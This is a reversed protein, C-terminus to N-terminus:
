RKILLRDAGAFPTGLVKLYGFVTTQSQGSPIDSCSFGTDKATFHFIRDLLGDGNLDAAAHSVAQGDKRHLEAAETGLKGFRVDNVNVRTADFTASSLLGVPINDSANRCSWDNPFTGPKIDINVGQLGANGLLPEITLHQTESTKFGIWINSCPANACQGLANLDPDRIFNSYTAQVSYTRPQLM